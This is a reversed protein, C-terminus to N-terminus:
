VPPWDRSRAEEAAIAAENLGLVSEILWFEARTALTMSDTANKQIETAM